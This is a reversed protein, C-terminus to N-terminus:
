KVLTRDKRTRAGRHNRMFFLLEILSKHYPLFTGEDIMKLVEELRAWRVEQVEESQLTLSSIDIDKEIVYIDDFGEDFNITIAPRDNEFSLEIGLEELLEREVSKQSTDGALASGGATLDWM